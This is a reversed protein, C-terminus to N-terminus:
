ERARSAAKLALHATACYRDWLDDPVPMEHPAFMETIMALAAAEIEVPEFPESIPM